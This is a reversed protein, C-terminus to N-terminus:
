SSEAPAPRRQLRAGCQECSFIQRSVPVAQVYGCDKCRVKTSKERAEITTSESTTSAGSMNQTLDQGCSRCVKANRTFKGCAPCKKFYEQGPVAPPSTSVQYSRYAFCFALFIFVVGSTLNASLLNLVGGIFECVAVVGYRIAKFLQARSLKQEM